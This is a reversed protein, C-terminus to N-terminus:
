SKRAVQSIDRVAGRDASTAFLAYAKLAQSVLRERAIPKWANDGRELMAAERAALIDESVALHIRRNPIDIEITDGTEV